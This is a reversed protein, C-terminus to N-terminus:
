GFACLVGFCYICFVKYLVKKDDLLALFESSEDSPLIVTTKINYKTLKEAVSAIRLQPGGLKGEEIINVVRLPRSISEIGM